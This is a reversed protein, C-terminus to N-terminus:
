GRKTQRCTAERHLGPKRPIRGGYGCASKRRASVGALRNRTLFEERGERVAKGESPPAATKAAILQAFSRVRKVKLKEREEPM